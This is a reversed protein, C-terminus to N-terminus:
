TVHAFQASELKGKVMGYIAINSITKFKTSTIKYLQKFVM